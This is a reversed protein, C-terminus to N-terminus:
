LGVTVDCCVPLLEMLMCMDLFWFFFWVMFQDSIIFQYSFAHRHSPDRSTWCTVHCACWLWAALHPGSSVAPVHQHLSDSSECRHWSCEAGAVLRGHERGGDPHHEGVPEAGGPGTWWVWLRGALLVHVNQTSSLSLKVESGIVLIIKGCYLCSHVAQTRM